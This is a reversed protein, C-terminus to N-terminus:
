PRRYRSKTDPTPTAARTRPRREPFTTGIWSSLCRGRLFRDHELEGGTAAVPSRYSRGVGLPPVRSPRHGLLRVFREEVFSWVAEEEGGLLNRADACVARWDGATGGIEAAGTGMPRDAPLRELAACSRRFAELFGETSGQSWGPLEDFEAPRLLLRAEEEVPEAPEEEIVAEKVSEAERTPLAFRGVLIGAALAATILVAALAASIRRM